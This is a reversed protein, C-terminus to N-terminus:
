SHYEYKILWKVKAKSKQKEQEDKIKECIEAQKKRYGALNDLTTKSRLDTLCLPCFNGHLRDKALKSGCEPCGIFAAKLNKVSHKAEYERIKLTLASHKQQLEKIKPTIEADSYDYFRVAHDDYWGNDHDRIWKEAEERNKLPSVEVHWHMPGSYGDGDRNARETIANMIQRRDCNEDATMHCINHGM